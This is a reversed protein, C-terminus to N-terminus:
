CSTVTREYVQKILSWRSQTWTLITWKIARRPPCFRHHQGRTLMLFPALWACCLLFNTDHKPANNANETQSSSDAVHENRSSLSQASSERMFKTMQRNNLRSAPQPKHETMRLEAPRFVARVLGLSVIM